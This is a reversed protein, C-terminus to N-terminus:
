IYSRLVVLNQSPHTIGGGVYRGKEALSSSSMMMFLSPPGNTVSSILSLVYCLQWTWDM